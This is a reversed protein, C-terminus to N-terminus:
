SDIDMIMLDPEEPVGYGALMENATKTDVFAKVLNISPNEFQNDFM